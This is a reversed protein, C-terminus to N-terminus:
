AKHGPCPLYAGPRNGHHIAQELHASVRFLAVTGAQADKVKPFSVSVVPQFGRAVRSQLDVPHAVFAYGRDQFVPQVSIGSRGLVLRGLGDDM